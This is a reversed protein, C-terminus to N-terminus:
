RFNNGVAKLGLVNWNLEHSNYFEPRTTEGYVKYKLENNGQFGMDVAPGTIGWITM